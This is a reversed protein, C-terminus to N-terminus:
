NNANLWNVKAQNAANSAPFYGVSIVEEDVFTLYFNIFAAVQPKSCSPLRHQLHFLPVPWRTPATKWM